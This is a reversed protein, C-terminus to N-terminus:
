KFAWPLTQTVVLAHLSSNLISYIFRLSLRVGYLVIVRNCHNECLKSSHIFYQPHLYCENERHMVDEIPHFFHLISNTSQPHTHM